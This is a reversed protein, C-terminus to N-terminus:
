SVTAPFRMQVCHIGCSDGELHVDTVLTGIILRAMEPDQPVCNQTGPAREACIRLLLADPEVECVVRIHEAQRLQHTLLELAEDVATRVDDIMDSSLNAVVGMGNLASRIVLGWEEKAPVTLTMRNM